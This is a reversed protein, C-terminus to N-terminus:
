SGLAATAETPRRGATTKKVRVFAHGAPRHRDVGDSGAMYPWTAKQKLMEAPHVLYASRTVLPSTFEKRKKGLFTVHLVWKVASVIAM